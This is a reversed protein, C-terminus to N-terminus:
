AGTMTAKVGAELERSLGFDAIKVNLRIYDLSYVLVNNVNLDRREAALCLFPDGLTPLRQWRRRCVVGPACEGPRARNGWFFM